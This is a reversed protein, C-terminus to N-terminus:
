LAETEEPTALDDRKLYHLGLERFVFDLISTARTIREHGTVIGAPEFRTNVFSTVFKDLPVGYQLSISVLQAFANTMARVMSGDKHMDIFIEGLTGDPYEGTHLYLTHGGITVRRIYGHRRDHLRRRNM